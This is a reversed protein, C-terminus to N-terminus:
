PRLESLIAPAAGTMGAHATVSKCDMHDAWLLLDHRVAIEATQQRNRWRGPRHAHAAATLEHLLRTSGVVDHVPLHSHWFAPRADLTSSQAGKTPARAVGLRM